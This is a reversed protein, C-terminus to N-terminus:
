IFYPNHKPGKCGLSIGHGSYVILGMVTFSFGLPFARIQIFMDAGYELSESGGPVGDETLEPM